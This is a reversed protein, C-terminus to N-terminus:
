TATPFKICAWETTYSAYNPNNRKFEKTKNSEYPIHWVNLNKQITRFYPLPHMFSVKGDKSVYQLKWQNQMLWRKFLGKQNFTNLRFLHSRMLDKSVLVTENKSNLACYLLYPDDQSLCDVLFLDANHAIYNWYNKPWKKMHTRGVVLVKKNNEVFHKVVSAVLFAFTQPSKVGASFAVNLGDIVVDYKKNSKLFQQLKELEKPNTKNFVDKGIIVNELFDNKLQEFEIETLTVKELKQSCSKCIGSKNVVTLSASDTWEKCYQVFVEADKQNFILDYQGLFKFLEEIKERAHKYSSNSKIQSFYSMYVYDLPKRDKEIIEKVIELGLENELNEFAAAAVASYTETTPTATIKVEDLLKIGQRWCKTVSLAQAVHESTTPDLVKYEKQIDDCLKLIQTEERKGSTRSCKYLLYLYKRKTALNPKIGAEELYKWFKIGLSYQKTSCCYNLIVFDVTSLPVDKNEKVNNRISTWDNAKSDQLDPPLLLPLVDEKVSRTTRLSSFHRSLNVFNVYVGCLSRSNLTCSVRWCWM